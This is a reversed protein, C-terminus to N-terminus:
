FGDMPELSAASRGAPQGAELATISSLCFLPRPSDQGCRPIRRGFVLLAARPRTEEVVALPKQLPTDQCLISRRGLFRRQSQIQLLAVSDVDSMDEDDDLDVAIPPPPVDSVTRPLPSVILTLTTLPSRSDRMLVLIREFPIWIKRKLPSQCTAGNLLDASLLLMKCLPKASLAWPSSLGCCGGHHVPGFRSGKVKPMQLVVDVAEGLQSFGHM